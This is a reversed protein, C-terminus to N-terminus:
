EETGEFTLAFATETLTPYSLAKTWGEVGQSVNTPVSSYVSNADTLQQNPDFVAFM